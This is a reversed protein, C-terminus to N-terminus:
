GIADDVTGYAHNPNMLAMSPDSFDVVVEESAWRSKIVEGGTTQDVMSDEDAWKTPDPKEGGIYWYALSEM